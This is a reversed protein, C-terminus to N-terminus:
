GQGGMPDVSGFVRQGLEFGRVQPGLASIEGAFDKGTIAPRKPRGLLRLIGGRLKFDVPNLSAMRVRVQVQGRAPQPLATERLTLVSEDGFRDYIVAQM